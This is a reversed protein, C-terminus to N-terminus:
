KDQISDIKLLMEMEGRNLLTYREREWACVCVNKTIESM